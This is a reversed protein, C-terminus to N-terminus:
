PNITKIGKLPKPRNSLKKLKWPSAVRASAPNAMRQIKLTFIEIKQFYSGRTPAPTM